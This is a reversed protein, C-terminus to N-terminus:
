VASGPSSPEDGGAPDVDGWDGPEEEEEEEEEEEDEEDKDHDVPVIAFLPLDNTLDADNQATDENNNMKM